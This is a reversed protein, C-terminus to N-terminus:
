YGSAFFRLHKAAQLSSVNGNWSAANAPVVGYNQCIASGRALNNLFELGFHSSAVRIQPSAPDNQAQIVFSVVHANSRRRDRRIQISLPGEAAEQGRTMVKDFRKECSFEALGFAV